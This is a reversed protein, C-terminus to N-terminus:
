AYMKQLIWLVLKDPLLRKLFVLVQYSFGVARRVPPNKRNIMKYVLKAATKPSTGNQEDKEMKAVSAEMTKKYRSTEANKVMVRNSTFETKTDGPEIMCVRVGDAKLEMRLAETAAELASKSASYMGQFPISLVGAVSSVNVVIGKSARLLDLCANTMQMSGFFNTEFQFRMEEYSTDEVAGAIGNGANNILADLRGADSKILSVADAISHSNTVDLNIMKGGDADKFTGPEIKRSTGYVMWGQQILENYIARGIGSSAGTILATKKDM